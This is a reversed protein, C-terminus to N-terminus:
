GSKSKKIKVEAVIWIILPIIVQFPLSYYPWIERAWDVMEVINKYLIISLNLMLAAIPIVIYRYESIGIVKSIGKSTVIICISIKVFVSVLFVVSVTIELRQFVKGIDIRSVTIYSPFYYRSAIENGLVAVNRAAVMLITFGSVLIGWLFVIYSSNKKKLSNFVMMFVVSEAFPFSFASFGGKIVPKVGNYLIPLFNQLKMQPIMLLQIFYLIIILIIVFFESWRGLVEIGAKTVWICLLILMIIPAFEPTGPLGLTNMFEGFNRFVLAGMHFAYWSYLICVFKGLVKGFLINSIDFLDKGPYLSLIRSYVLMITAGAATGLLIALWRDAGAETGTGLLLSSGFLFLIVMSIGQKNSFLDKQM